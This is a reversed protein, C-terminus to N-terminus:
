DTADRVRFGRLKWALLVSDATVLTLGRTIATAVLMRDAPDGHTYPLEGALTAIEGDIVQERAGNRLALDRFAAATTSLELRRRAVLSAVEWFSIASIFLEDDAVARDIASLARKGLKGEDRMYRVLVHTDLLIM